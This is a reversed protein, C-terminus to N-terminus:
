TQSGKLIKEHNGFNSSIDSIGCRKKNHQTKYQFVDPFYSNYIHNATNAKHYIPDKAPHKPRYDYWVAKNTKYLNIM